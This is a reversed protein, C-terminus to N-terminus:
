NSKRLKKLEDFQKKYNTRDTLQGQFVNHLTKGLADIRENIPDSIKELKIKILEDQAKKLEESLNKFKNEVISNILNEIPMNVNHEPKVVNKKNGTLLWDINLNPYNEIILNLKDLGISKSISNVYGNSVNISKEFTIVSLGEDKIYKKLREKVSM